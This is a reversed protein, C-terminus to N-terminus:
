ATELEVEANNALKAAADRMRAVLDAIDVVSLPLGLSNAAEVIGAPNRAERERFLRPIASGNLISLWSEGRGIASELDADPMEWLFALLRGCSDPSVGKSKLSRSLNLAVAQSLTFRRGKVGARLQPNDTLLRSITSPDMGVLAAFATTEM